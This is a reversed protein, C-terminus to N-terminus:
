WKASKINEKQEAASTSSIQQVIDQSEWKRIEPIVLPNGAQGGM